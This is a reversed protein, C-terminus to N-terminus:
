GDRRHRRWFLLALLPGVGVAVIMLLWTALPLGAIM